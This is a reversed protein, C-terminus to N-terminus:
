KLIIEEILYTDDQILDVDITQANSFLEPRHNWGSVVVRTMGLVENLHSNEIKLSENKSLFKMLEQLYELPYDKGENIIYIQLNIIIDGDSIWEKVTGIQGNIATQVIRKTRSTQMTYFDYLDLRNGENDVLSLPQGAEKGINNLTKSNTGYVPVFSNDQQNAIKVYKKDNLSMAIKTVSKEALDVASGVVIQKTKGEIYVKIFDNEGAM